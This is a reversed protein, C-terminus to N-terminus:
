QGPVLAESIALSLDMARTTVTGSAAAELFEKVLAGLPNHPVTVIKAAGDSFIGVPKEEEYRLERGNALKVRLLRKSAVYFGNGVTLCVPVGKVVGGIAHRGKGGRIRSANELRSCGLLDFVFALAHPGYDLLSSFGRDPSCGYFDVAISAIKQGAVAEKLRLYCPSWLHVYDVYLPASLRLPGTLMLPKTALVPTRAAVCDMVAGFTVIPPGATVIADIGAARPMQEWAMRRGFGPVSEPKSRAYAVIEAGQKQFARALTQGWPGTGILGIKM